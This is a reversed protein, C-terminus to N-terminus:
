AGTAYPCVDNEVGVDTEMECDVYTRYMLVCDMAEMEDACYEM